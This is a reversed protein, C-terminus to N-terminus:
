MSPKNGEVFKYYEAAATMVESVGPITPMNVTTVVENGKKTVSLEYEGIKAHYDQWVSSAALSLVETRLEYGNKGVKMQPFKFNAAFSDMMEKMEKMEKNMDNM